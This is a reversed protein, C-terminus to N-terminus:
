AAHDLAPQDGVAPERTEGRDNAISGATQSIERGLNRGGARADFLDHVITGEGARINGRDMNLAGDLSAVVGM